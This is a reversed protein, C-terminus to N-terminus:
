LGTLPSLSEIHSYSEPNFRKRGERPKGIKIETQGWPERGPAEIRSAGRPASLVKGVVLKM